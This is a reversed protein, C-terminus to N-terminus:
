ICQTDNAADADAEADSDPDYLAPRHHCIFILGVGIKLCRLTNWYM